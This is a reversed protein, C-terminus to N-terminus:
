GRSKRSVDLAALCTKRIWTSLELGQRRAEIAFQQKEEDTLRIQFQIRKLLSPLPPRGGTNKKLKAMDVVKCGTGKNDLEPHKVFDGEITLTKPERTLHHYEEASIERCVECGCNDVRERCEACYTEPCEHLSHDDGCDLCQSM